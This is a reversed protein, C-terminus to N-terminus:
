ENQGRLLRDPLGTDALVDEVSVIALVDEARTLGKGDRCLLAIETASRRFEGVLEYLQVDGGVVIWDTSALELLPTSGPIDRRHLLENLRHAALVAIPKGERVLLAHPVRPYRSMLKKLDSLRRHDHLRLFPAESLSAVSRMLYLNSHRAEPIYHGRRLLKLTYISERTIMRRIGFALSAVLILPVIIHYDNTMEFIMVAGTVAAGTSAGVMGAMGLAAGTALHLHLSPFLLDVLLVFAGGVLAGVYLSPSFVGGSGGAGLTTSFSLIKLLALLLLFAPNLLTSHLVDQVTAYGVGEVYYHGTTIALIYITAGVAAMGLIARLYPHPLWKEMFDETWYLMRTFFLGVAGVLIGLIAFLLYNITNMHATHAIINPPIIFSPYNGLLLRSILTATGTAIMVPVLTRASIEVLMLEVAFLVGGVPTNFTAAIGAGAGAAILGLRQWEPLRIWQALASGFAAGIQIIPGERGVSGGSGITIASALAKVLVVVPRIIGARYYIADMVEPVGHGKAEPAFNRVLWVVIVGGLVPALIIGAGWPSLASHHLDNFNIDLRGYFFFNHMLGILRRFVVAGLGAIIGVFIALLFHFFPNKRVRQWLIRREELDVSDGREARSQTPVM